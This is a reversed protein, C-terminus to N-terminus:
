RCTPFVVLGVFIVFLPLGFFLAFFLEFDFFSLVGGSILSGRVSV